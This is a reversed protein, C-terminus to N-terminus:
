IAAGGRGLYPGRWIENGRHDHLIIELGPKAPVNPPTITEAHRKASEIDVIYLSGSVLMQGVHGGAPVIYYSFIM